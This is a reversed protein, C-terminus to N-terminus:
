IVFLYQSRKRPVSFLTLFLSALSSVPTAIDIDINISIVHVVDCLVKFKDNLVSVFFALCARMGTFNRCEPFDSVFVCICFYFYVFVSLFFAPRARM